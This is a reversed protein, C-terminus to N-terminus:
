GGVGTALGTVNVSVNKAFQRWSISRDFAAMYFDPTITVVTVVTGTIANTRLLKSVHNVAAAGYVAKGLSGAAIRHVAARGVTTGSIAKVGSQVSVVGIAAHRTRLLQASIVGAILATSGASLAARLAAQVADETSEGHWRSQAFAVVFSIAAVYTSTVAQTKVDFVLSEVNGARAINRAQRYTVTGQQVIKEADSPNNVGPVKGQAIRNRMLEVCTGYQDKPVELVQGPYRYNGSSSDFAAAVTEPATQFDKSQIRVGNVIRDAGNFENSTGVIEASKGRVRDAFHNADEAAFGHGGKGHYKSIQTQTELAQATLPGPLTHAASDTGADENRVKNTIEDEM